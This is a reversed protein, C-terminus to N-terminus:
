FSQLNAEVKSFELEGIFGVEDAIYEPLVNEQLRGAFKIERCHVCADAFVLGQANERSLSWM